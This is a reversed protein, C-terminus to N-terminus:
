GQSRHRGMSNSPPNDESTLHTAEATLDDSLNRGVAQELEALLDREPPTDGGADDPMPASAAPEDARPPKVRGPVADRGGTDETPEQSAGQQEDEVSM